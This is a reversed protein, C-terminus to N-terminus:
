KSKNLIMDMKFNLIGSYISKVIIHNKSTIKGHIDGDYKICFTTDKSQGIYYDPESFWNEKIGYEEIFHIIKKHLKEPTINQCKAIAYVDSKQLSFYEKFAYEAIHAFACQFLYKEFSESVRIFNKYDDDYTGLIRKNNEKELDIWMVYTIVHIGIYFPLMKEEGDEDLWEIVENINTAVMDVVTDYRQSILGGDDEGMLELFKLYSAPIREAYNGLSLEAAKIYSDMMEKSAPKIRTKWDSDFPEIYDYLRKFLEDM